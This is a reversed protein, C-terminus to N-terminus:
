SLIQLIKRLININSSNNTRLSIGYKSVTGSSMQVFKVFTMLCTLMHSSNLFLSLIFSVLTLGEVVFMFTDLTNDM